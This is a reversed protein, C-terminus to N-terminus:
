QSDHGVGTLREKSETQKVDRNIQEWGVMILELIYESLTQGREKAEEMLGEKLSPYIRIGITATAKEEDM